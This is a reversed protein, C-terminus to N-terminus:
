AFIAASVLSGFDLMINVYGILCTCTGKFKGLGPIAPIYPDYFHRTNLIMLFCIPVNTESQNLFFAVCTRENIIVINMSKFSCYLLVYKVPRMRGEAEAIYALQRIKIFCPTVARVIKNVLM